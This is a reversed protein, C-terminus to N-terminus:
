HTGHLNRDVKDLIKPALAATCSYMHCQKYFKFKWTGHGRQKIFTM